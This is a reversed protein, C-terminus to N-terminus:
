KNGVVQPDRERGIGLHRGFRPRDAIDESDDM